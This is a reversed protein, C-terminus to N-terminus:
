YWLRSKCGIYCITSDFFFFFVRVTAVIDSLTMSLNILIYSHDWCIFLHLYKSETVKLSRRKNRQSSEQDKRLYAWNERQYPNRRLWKLIRIKIQEKAETEKKMVQFNKPHKRHNFGDTEWEISELMGQYDAWM